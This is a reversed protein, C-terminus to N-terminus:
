FSNEVSVNHHANYFARLENKVRVIGSFVKSETKSQLPQKSAMRCMFMSNPM